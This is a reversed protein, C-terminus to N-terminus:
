SDRSAVWSLAVYILVLAAEAAALVPSVYVGSPRLGAVLLHSLIAILWMVGGWTSTLWLGVGAVPDLVAFAIIMARVRPPMDEFAPGPLLDVGMITVWSGLAKVLWMAAVCRMFWVLVRSWAIGEGAPEDQRL